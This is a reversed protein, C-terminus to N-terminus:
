GLGKRDQACPTHMPPPTPSDTPALWRITDSPLLIAIGSIWM